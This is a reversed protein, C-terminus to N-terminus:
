ARGQLLVARARALAARREELDQAGPIDVADNLTARTRWLAAESERLHLATREACLGWAFATTAILRSSPSHM